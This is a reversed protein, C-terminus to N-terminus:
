NTCLSLVGQNSQNAQAQIAQSAQDLINMMSTGIVNLASDINTSSNSKQIEVLLNKLERMESQISEREASNLDNSVSKVALTNMKQMIESLNNRAGNNVDSRIVDSAVYEVAPETMSADKGETVSETPMVKDSTGTYGYMGSLLTEGSITM